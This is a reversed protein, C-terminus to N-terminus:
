SSRLARVMASDNLVEAVLAVAATAAEDKDSSGDSKSSANECTRRVATRSFVPAFDPINTSRRSKASAACEIFRCKRSAFSYAERLRGIHRLCTLIIRINLNVARTTLRAKAAEIIGVKASALEQIQRGQKNSRFRSFKMATLSDIDGVILGPSHARIRWKSACLSVIWRPSMIPKLGCCSWDIKMKLTMAFAPSVMLKLLPWIMKFPRGTGCTKRLRSSILKGVLGGRGLHSFRARGPPMHMLDLSSSVKGPPRDYSIRSIPGVRPSSIASIM